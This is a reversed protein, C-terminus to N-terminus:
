NYKLLTLLLGCTSIDNWEFVNSTKQTSTITKYSVRTKNVNITNTQVSHHGVCITKYKQKTKRRRTNVTERSKGNKLVGETNELLPIPTSLFHPLYFSSNILIKFLILILLHPVIVPIVNVCWKFVHVRCKIVNIRWRQFQCVM